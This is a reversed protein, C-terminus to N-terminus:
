LQLKKKDEEGLFSNETFNIKKKLHNLIVRVFKLNM